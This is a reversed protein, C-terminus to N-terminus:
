YDVLVDSIDITASPSQAWGATSPATAYLGGAAIGSADQVAEITVIQGVVLDLNLNLRLPVITAANDLRALVSTGVQVGNYLLRFYLNAVGGSGTRGAQLFIVVRYNGSVKCSISGDEALDFHTGVSAPGFSVRLPTGLAVPVQDTLSASVLRDVFVARGPASIQVGMTGTAADMRGIIYGDSCHAEIIGNHWGNGNTEAGDLVAFRCAAFYGPTQVDALTDETTYVYKNFIGRSQSSSRDIKEQVFGM